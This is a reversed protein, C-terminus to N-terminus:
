VQESALNERGENNESSCEQCAECHHFWELFSFVIRGLNVSKYDYRYQDLLVDKQGNGWQKQGKECELCANM